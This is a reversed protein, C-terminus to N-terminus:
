FQVTSDIIKNTWRRGAQPVTEKVPTLWGETDMFTNQSNKCKRLNLIQSKVTLSLRSFTIYAKEPDDSDNAM